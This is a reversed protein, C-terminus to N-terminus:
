KMMLLAVLVGAGVLGYLLIHSNGAGQPGMDPGMAHEHGHPGMPGGPGMPMPGRPGQPGKAQQYFANAQNATSTVSAYQDPAYAQGAAVATRQVLPNSVVKKLDKFLSFGLGVPTATTIVDQM